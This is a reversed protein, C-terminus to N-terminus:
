LLEFRALRTLDDLANIGFCVCRRCPSRSPGSAGNGVPAGGSELIDVALFSNDDTARPLDDLANIGPSSSSERGLFSRRALNMAETM